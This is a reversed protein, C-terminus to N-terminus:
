PPPCGGPGPHGGGGGGGGGGMGGGMGGIPERGGTGGRGSVKPRRKLGIATARATNVGDRGSRTCSGTTLLTCTQRDITPRTATM